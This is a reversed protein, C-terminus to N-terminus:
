DNINNNRFMEEVERRHRAEYKETIKTMPKGNFSEGWQYGYRASPVYDKNVYQLINNDDVYLKSWRSGGDYVGASFTPFVDDLNDIPVCIGDSKCNAVMLQIPESMYDVRPYVDKWVSDWDKGVQNLLYHYLPKFNYRPIGKNYDKYGKNHPNLVVGDRIENKTGKTNRTYRYVDKTLVGPVAHSNGGEFKRYLKKINGKM